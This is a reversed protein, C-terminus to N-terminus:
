VAAQRYRGHEARCEARVDEISGSPARRASTGSGQAASMGGRRMLWALSAEALALKSVLAPYLQRQITAATDHTAATSGSAGRTVRLTRAAYLDATTHAALTTGDVARDVTLTTGSRDVVRMREGGALLLEGDAFASITVGTISQDAMSATLTVNVTTDSWGWATVLMRESDVVLVDGVGAAAATAATVDIDTESADLAEALAGITERDDRYGFLGTGVLSRQWTDGASFVASTSADIDLRTYPPGDDPELLVSSLISVGAATFASLSVVDNQDLWLRYAPAGRRDVDPWDWRHTETVPYFRRRCLTDVARSGEQIARDLEAAAVASPTIDLSAALQQRTVYCPETVAM